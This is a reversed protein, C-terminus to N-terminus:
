REPTGVMSSARLKRAELGVKVAAASIEALFFPKRVFVAPRGPLASAAEDDRLHASILVVGITDAASRGDFAALSLEIGSMGPMKIDTIMVLIDPHEQLCALAKGPSNATLASFGLESLGDALEEALSVDDDVVLVLAGDGLQGKGDAPMQDLSAM